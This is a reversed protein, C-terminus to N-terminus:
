LLFINLLLFFSTQLSFPETVGVSRQLLGDFAQETRKYHAQQSGIRSFIHSLFHVLSFVSKVTYRMCGSLDLSRLNNCVDFVKSLTLDSIGDRCGSFDLSTLSSDLVLPATFDTLRRQFSLESIIAVKLNTPICDLTECTSVSLIGGLLRICQSQLSEVELESEEDSAPFFTSGDSLYGM